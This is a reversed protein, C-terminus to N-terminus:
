LNILTKRYDGIVHELVLMDSKSHRSDSFVVGMYATAQEIAQEQTDFRHLKAYTRTPIVFSSYVAYLEYYCKADRNTPTLEDYISFETDGSTFHVPQM